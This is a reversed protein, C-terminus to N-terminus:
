RKSPPKNIVLEGKENYVLWRQELCTELSYKQVLRPVEVEWYHDDKRKTILAKQDDKWAVNTLADVTETVESNSTNPLKRDMEKGCQCPIHLTTSSTYKKVETKCEPCAFIYKPM